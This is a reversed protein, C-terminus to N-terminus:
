ESLKLFYKPTHRVLIDPYFIDILDALLREPHFPTEEYFAIRGTNCGYVQRNRFADFHTYSEYEAKLATYSKDTPQNYKILWVDAHQARDFVTEFSLSVSGSRQINDFIYKGGADAYLRAMTSNGGPVYWTSSSKLESFVTRKQKIGSVKAKLALYTRESESFISDAKRAQGTLLGYFRIWEARGLPSTEMYEACEIIPVKLKEIQGYGGSNEFPSLLIADPQLDMVREIDPNMSSGADVIRGIKCGKQIYPLSIYQKDCVGAVTEEVGLESFLSCHVSSYILAKRVPIHVVTGEPRPTPLVGDSDVLLYTHLIKQENWPNRLVAKLYGKCQILTLYQAYHLQLTDGDTQTNESNGRRTCATFLSIFAIVFLLIKKM